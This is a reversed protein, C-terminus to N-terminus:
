VHITGDYLASAVLAASVGCAELRKLDRTDRIGGGAILQIKPFETALRRCLEETGVGEGVGVCALDLVILRSAGFCIVREAIMESDASGWASHCVPKGDKLDLSIVARDGWRQLISPLADPGAVTELGVIIREVSTAAIRDVDSASHIGADLWLAFGLQRLTSYLEWHPENGGIADLDALYLEVFGLKRYATAVNLPQPTACLRSVLPRYESRRGGVARVAVGNMLDLVPIIRM